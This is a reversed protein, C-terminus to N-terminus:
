KAKKSDGLRTLWNSGKRNLASRAIDGGQGGVRDRVHEAVGGQNYFEKSKNTIVKSQGMESKNNCNESFQIEQHRRKCDAKDFELESGDAEAKRKKTGAEATKKKEEKWEEYTQEKRKVGTMAKVMTMVSTSKEQKETLNLNENKKGKLSRGGKRRSRGPPTSNREQELHEQHEKKKRRMMELLSEEKKEGDM